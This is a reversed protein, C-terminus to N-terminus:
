HSSSHLLAFTRKLRMELFCDIERINGSASILQKQTLHFQVGKVKDITKKRLVAQKRHKTNYRKNDSKEESKSCDM